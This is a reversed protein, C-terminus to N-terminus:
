DANLAIREAHAQSSPGANEAFGCFISLFISGFRAFRKFGMYDARGPVDVIAVCNAFVDLLTRNLVGTVPTWGAECLSRVARHALVANWELVNLAESVMTQCGSHAAIANQVASAYGIVDNHILQFPSDCRACLYDIAPTNRPATRLRPSPCNVCYLNSEAWAETAVRARQPFRDRSAARDRHLTSADFRSFFACFACNSSVVDPLILLRVFRASRGARLATSPLVTSPDGM